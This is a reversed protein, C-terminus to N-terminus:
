PWDILVGRTANAFSERSIDLLWFANLGIGDLKKRDEDTFAKDIRDKSLPYHFPLYRYYIFEKTKTLVVGMGPSDVVNEAPGPASYLLLMDGREGPTDAGRKGLFFRGSDATDKDPPEPKGFVAVYYSPNKM